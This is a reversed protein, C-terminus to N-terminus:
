MTMASLIPRDENLNKHQAGFSAHTKFCLAYRGKLAYIYYVNLYFYFVNFFTSFYLLHKYVFNAIM